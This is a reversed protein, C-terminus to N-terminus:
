SFENMAFAYRQQDEETIERRVQEMNNDDYVNVQAGQREDNAAM